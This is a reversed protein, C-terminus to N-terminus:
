VNSFISNKSKYLEILKSQQHKTKYIYILGLSIPNDLIKKKNGHTIYDYKNNQM